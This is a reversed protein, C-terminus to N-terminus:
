GFLGLWKKAINKREPDIIDTIDNKDFKKLLADTGHKLKFDMEENFLPIVSLFSIEKEDDINLTLFEKPVSVPPLLIIGSLATNDAFSEAPDGNPITHGWGVWTTYKHPFRALFKMTRVPWYWQEDKFSEKDLQWNAPLTVMLEVHRPADLEDPVTMPLDSMGSTVLVHFPWDDAPKIHHIDIHVADSLIEHLVQSVSGLHQEIHASITETNLTNAPAEWDKEGEGYRYIPSGSKSLEDDKIKGSM